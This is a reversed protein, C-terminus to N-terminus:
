AGTVAAVMNIYEAVKDKDHNNSLYYGHDNTFFRNDAADWNVRRMNQYDGSADFYKEEEDLSLL